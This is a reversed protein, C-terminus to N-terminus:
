DEDVNYTSFTQNSKLLDDGYKSILYSRQYEIIDAVVFPEDGNKLVEKRDIKEQENSFYVKTLITTSYGRLYLSFISREKGTLGELLDIGKLVFVNENPRVDTETEIGFDYNIDDIRIKHNERDIYKMIDKSKNSCAAELYYKIPVPKAYGENKYKNWRRGYAKISSFIKIKFEQLLDEYEYSLEEYSYIKNAYKKALYEYKQYLKESMKM